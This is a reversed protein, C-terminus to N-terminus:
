SQGEGRGGRLQRFYEEEHQKDTTGLVGKSDLSQLLEILIAVTMYAFQQKRSSTQAM